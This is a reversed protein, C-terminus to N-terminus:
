TQRRRWLLLVAPAILLPVSGGGASPAVQCGDDDTSRPTATQVVAATFTPTPPVGGTPSPTPSADPLLLLNASQCSIDVPLGGADSGSAAPCDIVYSGTPIVPSPFITCEYLPESLPLATSSTVTARMTRCDDASPSCGAPLFAFSATTGPVTGQCSPQNAVTSTIHVAQSLAVDNSVTAVEAFGALRVRLSGFDGRTVEADDIQVIASPLGGVFIRGAFGEAPLSDGEPTSAGTHTVPVRYLGETADADIAVRCRYLVSGDPIVDVNDFALVLARLRICDAGEDCSAITFSLTKNINPNVTCDPEDGLRLPPSLELDNQIGAVQDGGSDLIVALDVTQGPQGRPDGGAIVVARATPAWLLAAAIAAALRWRGAM